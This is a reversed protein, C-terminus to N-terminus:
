MILDVLIKTNTGQIKWHNLHISIALYLPMTEWQQNYM